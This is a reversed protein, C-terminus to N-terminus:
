DRVYWWGKPEYERQRVVKYSGLEFILSKHEPHTLTSTEANIRFYLMDKEIYVEGSDLEHLHETAEGEALVRNNYRVASNPITGIRMVLLDGQKWM